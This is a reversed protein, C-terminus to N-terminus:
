TFEVYNWASGNAIYLRTTGGTGNTNKLAKIAGATATGLATTIDATTAWNAGYDATAYNTTAHTHATLSYATHTHSTASKADLASQLGSIATIPVDEVDFNPNKTTSATGVYTAM